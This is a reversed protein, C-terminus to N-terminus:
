IVAIAEVEILFEPAALAAVGVMTSAPSKGGFFEEHIPGWDPRYRIDTWV